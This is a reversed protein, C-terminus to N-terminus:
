FGYKDRRLKFAEEGGEMVKAIEERVTTVDIAGEAKVVGTSQDGAVRHDCCIVLEADGNVVLNANHSSFVIQRKPKAKWIHEVVKSIVQNDLDDEPQDIVLPPGEQSLLAWLLATAQQGASADAFQIYEAERAKYEFAPHDDLVVLSLELWSDVSLKSCVKRIDAESYGAKSLAPTVPLNPPQASDHASLALLQLEAVVDSWAAIPDSSSWIYEFVSDVKATRINTGTIISKLKASAEVSNACQKVTARIQGDSLATLLQCQRKLKAARERHLGEWAKRLEAYQAEPQGV